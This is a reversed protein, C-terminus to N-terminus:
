ATHYTGVRGKSGRLWCAEIVLDVGTVLTSVLGVDRNVQLLVLCFYVLILSVGTVLTSKLVGHCRGQLIVLLLLVLGVPWCYQLPPAAPPAPTGPHPPPLPGTPHLLLLSVLMQWSSPFSVLLENFAESSSDSVSDSFSSSPLELSSSSPSTLELKLSLSSFILQSSASSLLSESLSGSGALLIGLSDKDGYPPNKITVKYLLLYRKTQIDLVTRHILM